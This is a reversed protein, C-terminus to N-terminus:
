LSSMMKQVAKAMSKEQQTEPVWENWTNFRDNIRSCLLCPCQSECFSDEKESIYGRQALKVAEAAADTSERGNNRFHIFLQETSRKFSKKLKEETMEEEEAEWDDGGGCEEDSYEYESDNESLGEDGEDCEIDGEYVSVGENSGEKIEKLIDTYTTCIQTQMDAQSLLNKMDRTVYALGRAIDEARIITRGSHIVYIDCLELAKQTYVMFPAAVFAIDESTINEEPIVSDQGSKLFNFQSM